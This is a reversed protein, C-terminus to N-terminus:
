DCVYEVFATDLPDVWTSRMIAGDYYMRVINLFHAPPADLARRLERLLTAHRTKESVRRTVGDVEFKDPNWRIFVVPTGGYANYVDLM